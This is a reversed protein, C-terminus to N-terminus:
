NYPGCGGFIVIYREFRCTTHGFRGPFDPLEVDAKLVQWIYDVTDLVLDLQALYKGGVVVITEDTPDTFSM